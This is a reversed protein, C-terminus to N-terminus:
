SYIDYINIIFKTGEVGQKTSLCTISGKLIHTVLSYVINLGLGHHGSGRKTTFFPDFIKNINELSIGIGNDEYVIELHDLKLIVEVNIINNINSTFGHSLSNSILYSLTRALAGPNTYVVLDKPCKFIIKANYKDNNFNYISLIDTIYDYINLERKEQSDQDVAIQKFNSIIEIIKNLSNITLSSSEYIKNISLILESKIVKGNTIDEAIKNSVDNIYTASTLSVGAPTNIEHAVGSVLLGLSAMKSAEVLQEQTEKLNELSNKLELTREEVKDELHKRYIELDKESEKQKTIDLLLGDIHVYEETTNYVARGKELIWHVKTDKNTLRYEVTYPEQNLISNGRAQDVNKYDKDEILENYSIDNKSLIEDKSYGSIEKIGEGIIILNYNDDTKARFTVGPINNVLTKYQNAIDNIRKHALQSEKLGHYLGYIAILLFLIIITVILLIEKYKMWFTEPKNIFDINKFNYTSINFKKLIEYDLILSTSTKYVIPITNVSKGNLIELAMSAAEKGHKYGDVVIGGITGQNLAFDWTVYVPVKSRQALLPFFDNYEFFINNKDRSFVTTLIATDNQLNEVLSILENISANYILQINKNPFDKIAINIEKQIIKGTVIDDCIVIIRKLEPQLKYILRINNKIDAVESIGTTNTFKEAEEKKLYNLGCFVIPTDKFITSQSEQIFNFANNDSTLILDYNNKSYKYQLLSYLIKLYENDFQRKSDLYEIHLNIKEDKFVDIIGNTINDTWLFGQHYSNLLLVNKEKAPLTILTLTFLVLLLQKNLQWKM